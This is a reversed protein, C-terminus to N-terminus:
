RERDERKKKVEVPEKEKELIEDGALLVVEKEDMKLLTNLEALRKNKENLEEEYPFPKNIEHKAAEMQRTEDLLTQKATEYKNTMSSLTNEIRTINGYVDSGLVVGHTLAGKLDMRYEGSFPSFSLEMDFGRYSGILQADKNQIQYCAAIIAKGADAKETYTIGMVTMPTFIDKAEPTHAALTAIDTEYGAIREKLQQIRQPYYKLLKDELDFRQSMHNSKLLNLKGVEMELNSKEIILPNGTALAKIEAYSLATEDVDEAARVPAKSTM